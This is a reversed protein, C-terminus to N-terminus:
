FHENSYDWVIMVRTRISLNIRSFPCLLGVNLCKTSIFYHVHLQVSIKRFLDQCIDNSNFGIPYDLHDVNVDIDLQTSSTHKEEYQLLYTILLISIM